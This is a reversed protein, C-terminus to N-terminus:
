GTAIGSGVCLVVCVCFLHVYTDIGGAPNSGVIEITSSAFITWAKPWAAETKWVM